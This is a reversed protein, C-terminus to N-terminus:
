QHQKNLYSRTIYFLHFTFKCFFQQKIEFIRVTSLKESLLSIIEEHWSDVSSARNYAVPTEIKSLGYREIIKRVTKRHTNTTRAIKRQSIGQKHLTLITTYM